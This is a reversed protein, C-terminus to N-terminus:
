WSVRIAAPILPVKQLVTDIALCFNCCREIIKNKSKEQETQLPTDPLGPSGPCLPSLTFLM